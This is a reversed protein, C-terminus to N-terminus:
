ARACLIRSPYTVFSAEGLGRKSRGSFYLMTMLSIFILPLLSAISMSAINAKRQRKKDFSLTQMMCGARIFSTSIRGGCQPNIPEKVALGPSFPYQRMIWAADPEELLSVDIFAAISM